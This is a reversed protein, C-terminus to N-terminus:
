IFTPIPCWHVFVMDQNENDLVIGMMDGVIHNNTLHTLCWLLWVQIHTELLLHHIVGGKSIAKVYEMYIERYTQEGCKGYKGHFLMFNKGDGEQIGVHEWM